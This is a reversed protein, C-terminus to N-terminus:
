SVNNEEGETSLWECAEKIEKARKLASESIEETMSGSRYSFEQRIVRLNSKTTM